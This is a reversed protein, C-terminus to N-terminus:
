CCLNENNEENINSINKNKKQKVININNNYRYIKIPLGEIKALHSVSKLHYNLSSNKVTAGCPCIVVEKLKSMIKEKNENYYKKNYEKKDM